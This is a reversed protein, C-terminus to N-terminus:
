FSGRAGVFGLGVIPQVTTTVGVKEESSGKHNSLLFLTVGGAVGVGGIVFGIASMTQASGASDYLDQAQTARPDSKLCRPGCENVLADADSRNSRSKLLFITGLVLGVGGVGFAAYSGIRMGKNGSQAGKDEAASTQGSQSTPEASAAGGSSPATSAPKGGPKLELTVTDKKGEAVSVTAVDSAYGDATAQIKHEGPDVPASVGILAAPMKEGDVTIGLNQPKDAGTVKIRLQPIRPELAALEAAGQDKADKFAQPSEPTLASRALKQYTERAKVYKGLREYSRALYLLHPPAHVLSEARTFLDVADAWRQEQFAQLGETAAARAIAREEDSQAHAAPATLLAAALAASALYRCARVRGSM